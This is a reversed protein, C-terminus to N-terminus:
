THTLSTRNHRPLLRWDPRFLLARTDRISEEMTMLVVQVKRPLRRALGREIFRPLVLFFGVLGCVVAVIGAAAFANQMFDYAFMTSATTTSIRM